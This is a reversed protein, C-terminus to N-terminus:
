TKKLCSFVGSPAKFASCSSRAITGWVGVVGQPFLDRTYARRATIEELTERAMTDRRVHGADAQLNLLKLSREIDTSELQRSRSLTRDDLRSSRNDEQVAEACYHLRQTKM